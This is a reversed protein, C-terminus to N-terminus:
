LDEAARGGGQEGGEPEGGAGGVAPIGVDHANGDELEARKEGYKSCADLGDAASMFHGYAWYDRHGCKKCTTEAECIVAGEHDATVVLDNPGGCKNCTEKCHYM